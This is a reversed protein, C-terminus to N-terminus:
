GGLGEVRKAVTSPITADKRNTLSPRLRWGGLKTHLFMTKMWSTMSLWWSVTPQHCRSVRSASSSSPTGAKPLPILVAACVGTKMLCCDANV